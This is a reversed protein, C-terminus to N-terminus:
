CVDDGNPHGRFLCFFILKFSVFQFLIQKLKNRSVFFLFIQNTESKETNRVDFCGFCSFQKSVFRFLGLHESFYWFMSEILSNTKQKNRNLPFMSVRQKPISAFCGFYVIKFCVLVFRFLGLNEPFFVM